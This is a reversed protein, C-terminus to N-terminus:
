MVICCGCGGKEKKTPPDEPPEPVRIVQSPHPPQPPNKPSPITTLAPKDAIKPMTSYSNTRGVLPPSRPSQLSRLSPPPPSQPCEPEAPKLPWDAQPQEKANEKEQEKETENENANEKENEVPEHEPAVIPHEPPELFGEDTLPRFEKDYVNGVKGEREWKEQQLRKAVTPLLQQEPPLRPDPRFASVMWPPEGEMPKHTTPSLERDGSRTTPRAGTTEKNSAGRTRPRATTTSAAKGSVKKAGSAVQKTKIPSTDARKAIPRVDPGNAAKQLANGTSGSRGRPKPYAIKEKDEEPSSDRKRGFASAKEDTPTTPYTKTRPVPIRSTVKAGPNSTSYSSDAHEAGDDVRKDWDQTAASNKRSRSGVHEGGGISRAQGSLKDQSQDRKLRNGSKSRARNDKAVPIVFGAAQLEENEIQALKDRHIWKSEDTEPDLLSDAPSGGEKASRPKSDKHHSPVLYGSDANTYRADDAVDGNYLNHALSDMPPTNNNALLTSNRKQSALVPRGFPYGNENNISSRKPNVPKESHVPVSVSDWSYKNGHSTAPPTTLATATRSVTAMM